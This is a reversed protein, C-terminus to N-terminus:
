YSTRHVIYLFPVDSEALTDVRARGSRKSVLVQGSHDRHGAPAYQTSHVGFLLFSLTGRIQM